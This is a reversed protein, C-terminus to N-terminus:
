SWYHKILWSVAYGGAVSVICGVIFGDLFGERRARKRHRDVIGWDGLKDDNEWWWIM